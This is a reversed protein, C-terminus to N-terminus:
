QHKTFLTPLTTRHPRRSCSPGRGSTIAACQPLQQWAPVHQPVTAARSPRPALATPRPSPSASVTVGHHQGPYGAKMQASRTRPLGREGSRQAPPHTHQHSRLHHKYLHFTSTDQGRATWSPVQARMVASHRAQRRPGLQPGTRPGQHAGPASPSHPLPGSSPLAHAWPSALFHPLLAGAAWRGKKPQRVRHALALTSEQLTVSCLSGSPPRQRPFGAGLAGKARGHLCTALLPRM